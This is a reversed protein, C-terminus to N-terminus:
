AQVDILHDRIALATEHAVGALAISAHETGATHVVLTALGFAREVPGQRVDTHQVRSRPISVVSRWLVGRRIRMGAADIRWFAHRFAIPPWIWALVLLTTSLVLWALLSLGVELQTPRAAFLRVVLAILMVFSFGAATITGSIRRVVISRPDLPRDVGDAVSGLV